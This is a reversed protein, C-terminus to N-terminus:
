SLEEQEPNQNNKGKQRFATPSIGYNQKFVRSFYNGDSFGVEMAIEKISKGTNLLLEKAQEMRKGNVYEAFGTGFQQKFIRSVSYASIHFHDAIASQNLEANRCNEETFALIDEVTVEHKRRRKSDASDEPGTEAALAQEAAMLRCSELSKSIDNIHNVVCGKYLKHDHAINDSCWKELSDHIQQSTDAELFAMVVTGKEGQIDSIYLKCHYRQEMKDFAMQIEKSDLMYGEILFVCFKQKKVDIGINKIQEESVPLGYLLHNMLLDMIILKREDLANHIRDFEGGSGGMAKQSLHYVPRYNYYTAVLCVVAMLCVVYLLYVRVHNYYSHVINQEANESSDVVFTLGYKGGEAFYVDAEAALNETADARSVEGLVFVVEGTANDLVYFNVWSRRQVSQYFFDMENAAIESILLVAEGNKGLEACVGVWLSEFSGNEKWVPAFLVRDAEYADKSFFQHAAQDGDDASVHLQTDLFDPVTYKIRNYLIFDADYYYVGMMGGSSNSCFDSLDRGAEWYYYPNEQMKQSGEFFIGGDGFSKSNNVRFTVACNHKIEIQHAFDAAFTEALDKYYESNAKEIERYTREHFFVLFLLTPVLTLVCCTLLLQRLYKNKKM